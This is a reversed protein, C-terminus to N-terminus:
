MKWRYANKNVKIALKMIAELATSGSETIDIDKNLPFYCYWKHNSYLLYDISIKNEEVLNFVLLKLYDKDIVFDVSESYIDPHEWVLIGDIYVEKGIAKLFNIIFKNDM